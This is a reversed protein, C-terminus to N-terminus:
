IFNIVPSSLHFINSVGVFSVMTQVTVSPDLDVMELLIKLVRGNSM